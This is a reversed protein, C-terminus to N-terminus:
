RTIKFLFKLSSSFKKKKTRSDFWEKFVKHEKDDFKVYLKLGRFRHTSHSICSALIGKQLSPHVDEVNSYNFIPKSYDEFLRRFTM